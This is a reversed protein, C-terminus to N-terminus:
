SHVEVIEAFFERHWRRRCSRAILEASARSCIYAQALDPVIQQHLNLYRLEPKVYGPSARRTIRIAYRLTM